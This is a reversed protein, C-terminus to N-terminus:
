IPVCDFQVERTLNETSKTSRTRISLFLDKRLPVSVNGQPETTVSVAARSQREVGRTWSHVSQSTVMVGTERLLKAIQRVSLSM